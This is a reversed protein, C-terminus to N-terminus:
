KSSAARKKLLSLKEELKVEREELSAAWKRVSAEDAALQKARKSVEAEIAALEKRADNMAKEVSRVTAERSVVETTISQALERDRAAQALKEDLGAERVALTTEKALCAQERAEVAELSAKVRGETARLEGARRSAEEEAIRLAASRASLADDSARKTQLFEELDRQFADLRRGLESREQAVERQRKTVSRDVEQLETCRKLLTAEINALQEVYEAAAASSYEGPDRNFAAANFTRPLSAFSSAKLDIAAELAKLAAAHILLTEEKVGKQVGSSPVASVPQTPPMTAEVTTDASSSTTPAVTAAPAAVAPKPTEVTPTSVKTVAQAEEENAANNATTPENPFDAVSVNYKNRLADLLPGVNGKYSKRMIQPVKEVQKPAYASYFDIVRTVDQRRQEVEAADAKYKNALAVFLDVEARDQAAIKAIKAEAPVEDAYTTYFDVLKVQLSAKSSM